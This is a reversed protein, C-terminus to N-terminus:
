SSVRSLASLGRTRRSPLSSSALQSSASSRTTSFSWPKSLFAMPARAEVRAVLSVSWSKASSKLSIPTSFTPQRSPGMASGGSFSNLRASRSSASMNMTTPSSKASSWWTAPKKTLRPTVLLPARSTTTSSSSVPKTGSARRQSFGSSTSSATRRQLAAAWGATM